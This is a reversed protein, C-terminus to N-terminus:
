RSMCKHNNKRVPIAIPDSIPLGTHEHVRTRCSTVKVIVKFQGSDMPTSESLGDHESVINQKDSDATEDGEYKYEKTKRFMECMNEFFNRIKSTMKPKFQQLRKLLFM